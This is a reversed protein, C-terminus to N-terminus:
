APNVKFKVDEPFRLIQPLWGTAALLKEAEKAMREKKLAALRWSAQQSVGEAVAALIHDKRVRSFFNAETPRWWERMDLELAAALRDAQERNLGSRHGGELADVMMGVCHALLRDREDPSLQVLWDWLQQPDPLREAWGAHRAAFAQGAKSEAVGGSIQEPAGASATLRLCASGGHRFLQGVLAHLLALLAVSPKQALVERMAATRHASLDLLVSDAYGNGGARRKAARPEGETAMTKSADIKVLGREVEVSGGPGLSVIAGSRAKEEPSWVAPSELRAMEEAVADIEKGLSEDGEELAAVLEDYREALASLKAQQEESLDRELPEARGFRSLHALDLEPHVEVWSWGEALVPRAAEQLKEFVLRDLLQSDALYGEDESDFLDRVVTGGAAEYGKAGIFGARRDSAPVHASTLMRRIAQAPIEPFSREFWIEEQLKHDDSLTFATLQELTMAGARYEAILRPSVSALKLRQEVFAKGIGFRSAIEDTSLGKQALDAFAEFQDAPHLPVRLFNEALSTEEALDRGNKVLCPVPYDRPIRKKKALLRLAALRRGGAKVDYVPEKGTGNPQVVLNQLVGKAAINNALEGIGTLRDTKRVNHRSPRLQCLPIMRLKDSM